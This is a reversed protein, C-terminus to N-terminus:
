KGRKDVSEVARLSRRGDPSSNEEGSRLSAIIALCVLIVLVALCNGFCGGRRREVYVIRDSM